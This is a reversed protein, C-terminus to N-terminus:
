WGNMIIKPIIQKEKPSWCKHNSCNAGGTVLPNLKVVTVITIVMWLGYHFQFEKCWSFAISIAKGCQKLPEGRGVGLAGSTAAGFRFALAGKWLGVFLYHISGVMPSSCCMPLVKHLPNLVCLIYIFIYIYYYYNVLRFQQAMHPHNRKNVM